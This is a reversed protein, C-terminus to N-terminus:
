EKMKVKLDSLVTVPIELYDQGFVGEFSYDRKQYKNDELLFVSVNYIDYVVWYEQVGIFQYIDLKEMLDKSVTSPSAIEIVWKPVGKYGYACFDERKCDAIFIDPILYSKTETGKEIQEKFYVQFAKLNMIDPFYFSMAIGMSTYVKHSSNELYHWLQRSLSEKLNEHFFSSFPLKVLIEKLFNLMM